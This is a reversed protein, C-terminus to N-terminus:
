IVEVRFGRQYKDLIRYAINTEGVLIDHSEDERNEFPQPHFM